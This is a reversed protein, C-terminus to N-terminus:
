GDSRPTGAFIRDIVDLMAKREVRPQTSLKEDIEKHLETDDIFIGHMRALLNATAQVRLRADDSPANSLISVALAVLAAYFLEKDNREEPVMDLLAHFHDDATEIYERAREAVEEPHSQIIENIDM